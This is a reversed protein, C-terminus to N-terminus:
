LKRTAHTTDKPVKVPRSTREQATQHRVNFKMRGQGACMSAAPEVIPIDFHDGSLEVRIEAIGRRESTMAKVM